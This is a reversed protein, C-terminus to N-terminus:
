GNWQSEFIFGNQDMKIWELEFIFGNQDGNKSVKSWEAECWRDREGKLCMKRRSEAAEVAPIGCASTKMTM